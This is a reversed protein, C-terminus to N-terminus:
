AVAKRAEVSANCAELVVGMDAGLVAALVKLAAPRPVFVGGLWREVTLQTTEVGQKELEALLGRVTLGKEEILEQLTKM